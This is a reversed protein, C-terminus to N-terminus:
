LSMVQRHWLRVRSQTRHKTTRNRNPSPKAGEDTKSTEETKNEAKTWWATTKSPERKLVQIPQEKKRRKEKKYAEKWARKWAKKKRTRNTCACQLAAEWQKQRPSERPEETRGLGRWPPVTWKTKCPVQIQVSHKKLRTECKRRSLEEESNNQGKECKTHSSEEWQAKGPTPSMCWLRHCPSQIVPLCTTFLSLIGWPREVSNNWRHLSTGELPPNRPSESYSFLGAKWLCWKDTDCSQGARPGTNPTETETLAVNQEKIQEADKKLKTKQRQGSLQQKQHNM